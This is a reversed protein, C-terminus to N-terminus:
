VWEEQMKFSRPQWYLYQVIRPSDARNPSSDHPLSNHWIILDGANAAIAVLGLKSLDQKRPNAGAPLQALWDDIKHHFGPALTLAGQNAATDTLYLIGQVGFPIPRALSFDWHIGTGRYTFNAKEPPNFGTKDTTVLLDTRGWLQEFARRIKPSARNKDLAPHRYLQVMIGQLKDTTQYWSDPNNEDMGLFDWVAARSDACDGAPIANRVIVYGNEEWFAMDTATLVDNEQENAVLAGQQVFLANCQQVIDAPITGGHHAAVWKEFHEFDPQQQHLFTFSPLLGVGLLALVANDLQWEDEYGNAGTMAKSWIRKLHYVGTFGAENSKALVSQKDAMM